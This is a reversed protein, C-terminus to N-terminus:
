QNRTMGYIIANMKRVIVVAAKIFWSTKDHQKSFMNLTSDNFFDDLIDTCLLLFVLVIAILIGGNFDFGCDGFFRSINNM